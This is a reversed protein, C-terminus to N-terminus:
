VTSQYPNDRVTLARLLADAAADPLTPQVVGAIAVALAHHDPLGQAPDPTVFLVLKCGVSALESM